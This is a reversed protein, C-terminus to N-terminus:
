VNLVQRLITDTTDWLLYHMFLDISSQKLKSLLDVRGAINTKILNPINLVGFLLSVACLSLNYILNTCALVCLSYIDVAACCRPVATICQAIHFTQISTWMVHMAWVCDPVWIARRNVVRWVCLWAVGLVVCIGPEHSEDM